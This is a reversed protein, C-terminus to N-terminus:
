KGKIKIKSVCAAKIVGGGVVNGTTHTMGKRETKYENFYGPRIVGYKIM